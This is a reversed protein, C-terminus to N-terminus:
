AAVWHLDDKLHRWEPNSKEILKIKWDRNWGKLQKERAIAENVDQYCEIYVLMYVRYKRTFGSARGLEHENFRRAADNTIGIYLVGHKRSALIYVYYM